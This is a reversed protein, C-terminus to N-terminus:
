RGHGTGDSVGAHLGEAIRSGVVDARAGAPISVSLGRLSRVDGGRELGAPVGDAEFRAALERELGAAIRHADGPAFGHLVLEGIEVEIRRPATM